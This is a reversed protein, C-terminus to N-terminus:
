SCIIFTDLLFIYLLTQPISRLILTFVNSIDSTALMNLIGFSTTYFFILIYPSIKKESPFYFFLIIFSPIFIFILILYVYIDLIIYLHILVSGINKGGYMIDLIGYIYSATSYQLYDSKNFDQLFINIIPQPAISIIQNIQLQKM